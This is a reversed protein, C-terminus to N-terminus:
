IFSFHEMELLLKFMIFISEATNNKCGNVESVEGGENIIIPLFFLNYM